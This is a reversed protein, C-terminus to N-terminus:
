DVCKGDSVTGALDCGCGSGGVLGDPLLVSDTLVVDLEDHFEMAVPLCEDSTLV